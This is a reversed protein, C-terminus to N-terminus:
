EQENDIPYDVFINKKKKLRHLERQTRTIIHRTKKAMSGGPNQKYMDLTANCLAIYAAHDEPTKLIDGM